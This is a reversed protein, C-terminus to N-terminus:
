IPEIERESYTANCFHLVGKEDKQPVLLNYSLEGNYWEVSKLLCVTNTAVHLIPKMPQSTFLDM